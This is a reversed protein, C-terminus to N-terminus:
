RRRELTMPMGHRSRLTLQPQLVIRHGPVLRIRWRSALTSIVLLGQMWAFRDGICQLGGGGFPFYSFKPRAAAAEKTWREPDFREPEPFYRADRHMLFQSVHIYSGKPIICGNFNLDRLAHRGMIWIPPYIRMSETFVMRTYTLKELDDVAPLRGKLVTDIEAHLKKTPGPNKAMLYWTWMLANALTEHGGVFFTLIQDRVKQDTMKKSSEKSMRVLVSLLDPQDARGARREAITQYIFQDLQKAARRFRYNAPLPMKELVKSLLLPNNFRTAALVTLLADRLETAGTELNVNFLTKGMISMTLRTMEEGVDIRSGNRWRDSWRVTECVMVEGLAAIREKQFVTQLLSRQKKHIKGRSTLLGQGLIRQLPRHVSRRVGEQDFLIARIHDPHNLLFDHRKGIQLHVIDGYKRVARALYGLPDRSLAAYAAWAVKPGPPRKTSHM